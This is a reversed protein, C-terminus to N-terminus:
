FIKLYESYVEVINTPTGVPRISWLIKTPIGPRFHGFLISLYFSLKLITKMFYVILIHSSENPERYSWNLANTFVNILKQTAYFALFKKSLQSVIQSELLPETEHLNGSVLSASAPKMRLHITGIGHVM